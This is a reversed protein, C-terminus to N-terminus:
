KTPALLPLVTLLLASLQAIDINIGFSALIPKALSVLNYLKNYFDSSENGMADFSGPGEPRPSFPYPCPLPDPSDLSPDRGNPYILLDRPPVPSSHTYLSSRGRGGPAPASSRLSTRASIASARRGEGVAPSSVAGAYSGLTGAPAGGRGVGDSLAGPLHPFHLADFRAPVRAAGSKCKLADRAEILSVGNDAAFSRIRKQVEYEPCGKDTTRHSGQCNACTPPYELRPCAVGGEHARLSCHGCRRYGKCHQMIHGYRFCAFCMRIPPIYPLVEYGVNYVSISRPLTRGAFFVLMTTSPVLQSEGNVVVRRHLRKVELARQSSNLGERFEEVDVYLPIGRIIGQRMTKFAPIFIRINIDKLPQSEVLDNAFDGSKCTVSVRSYGLKKVNSTRNPFTKTFFKGMRFLCIAEGKESVLHVDYPGPISKDYKNATLVDGPLNYGGAGRKASGSNDGGTEGTRPRKIGSKTVVYEGDKIRDNPPGVDGGSGSGLLSFAVNKGARASAGRPSPIPPPPFEARSDEGIEMEEGMEDSSVNDPCGGSNEASLEVTDGSTTDKFEVIEVRAGESSSVPVSAMVHECPADPRSLGGAFGSGTGAVGVSRM